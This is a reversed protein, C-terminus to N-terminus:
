RSGGRQLVVTRSKPTGAVEMRALSGRPGFAAFHVGNGGLGATSHGDVALVRMGPQMGSEAAVSNPRVYTIVPIGDALGLDIGTPGAQRRREAPVLLATALDLPGAGDLAITRRESIFDELASTFYVTAQGALPLGDLAFTGGESTTTRRPGVPTLVDVQAGAIPEDSPYTAVRGRLTRGERMALEVVPAPGTQSVEIKPTFAVRGDPTAAWVAYTGPALGAVDVMSEPWVEAQRSDTTQIGHATPPALAQTSPFVLCEAPAPNGDPFRTRIKIGGGANMSLRVDEGLSVGSRKTPTFKEHRAWLTYRGGHLREIVFKGESDATVSGFGTARAVDRSSPDLDEAVSGVQAGPIPQGHEDVVVGGIRGNEREIRFDVHPYDRVQDVKFSTRNSALAGKAQLMFVAAAVGGSGSVALEVTGPQVPGVEHTGDSAAVAFAPAPRQLLIITAGEAPAGDTWSVTGTIRARASLQLVVPTNEGSRLVMQKESSSGHHPHSAVVTARGPVLSDIWFRGSTDSIATKLAKQLTSGQASLANVIVRTGAVPTGDQSMVQGVLKATAAVWIDADSVEQTGVSLDRSAPALDARTAALRYMGSAVGRFSFRGASDTNELVRTGTSHTLSITVGALSISSTARVKGGVIVGRRLKIVVGETRGGDPLTLPGDLRGTWEGLRANLFYTGGSLQEFRFHGRDDARVEDNLSAPALKRVLTVNAGAAIEGKPGETVVTGEVVSWPRLTIALTADAQLDLVQFVRAYGSASVTLLYPGPALTLEFEGHEDTTAIGRATTNAGDATLVAVSAGEVVGARYDRVNGRVLFGRAYAVLTVSRAPTSAITLDVLTSEDTVWRGQFATLIYARGRPVDASFAGRNNAVTRSCKVTATSSALGADCVSVIAKALPNGADTLVQGTISGPGGRPVTVEDPSFSPVGGDVNRPKGGLRRDGRLLLAATLAIITCLGVAAWLAAPRRKSM